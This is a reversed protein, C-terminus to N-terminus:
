ILDASLQIAQNIVETLLGIDSLCRVSAYIDALAKQHEEAPGEARGKEFGNEESQEAITMIVGQHSLYHTSIAASLETFDM